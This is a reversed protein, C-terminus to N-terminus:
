SYRGELMVFDNSDYGNDESDLYVKDLNCWDGNIVVPLGYQSLTERLEKVTM